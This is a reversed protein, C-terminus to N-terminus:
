DCSCYRKTTILYIWQVKCMGQLPSSLLLSGTIEHPTPFVDRCRNKSLAISPNWIPSWVKSSVGAFPVTTSLGRAPGAPRAPRHGAQQGQSLVLSSEPTLVVEPWTDQILEYLFRLLVLLLPFFAASTGQQSCLFLQSECCLSSDSWGNWRVAIEKHTSHSLSM